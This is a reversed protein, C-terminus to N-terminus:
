IDFFKKLDEISMLGVAVEGDERQLTPVSGTGLLEWERQWVDALSESATDVRLDPMGLDRALDILLKENSIDEGNVWFERGLTHRYVLALMADKKQAAIVYQIARLTNPKGLPFSIEIEPAVERVQLVERELARSLSYNAIEMPVSLGQSHQVGRWEVLSNLHLAVLREELAYCFPCNLDSYLNARYRM